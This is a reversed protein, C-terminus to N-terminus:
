GKYAVALGQKIMDENLSNISGPIYVDALYRGYKEKKDKVTQVTVPTGPPLIGQLWTKSVKGAETSTEPANIGNFRCTMTLTTDCGLDVNFVATDGDIVRVVTAKRIYVDKMAPTAKPM